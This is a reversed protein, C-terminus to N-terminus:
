PVPFDIKFTVWCAVPEGDITAAAFQYESVAEQAAEDLGCSTGSPRAILVERVKGCCDVLAQVWVCGTSGETQCLEPYAPAVEKIVKPQVDVAVFEGPEPLREEVTAPQESLRFPVRFYCWCTTPQGDKTRPEFEWNAAATQASYEFGLGKQDCYVVGAEVVKGEKSLLAKLWVDAEVGQKRAEPPYMPAVTKVPVALEYIKVHALETPLNNYEENLDAFLGPALLICLSIARAAIRFLTNCM